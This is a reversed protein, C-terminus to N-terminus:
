ALQKKLVALENSFRGIKSSLESYLFEGTTHDFTIPQTVMGKETFRASRRANIFSEIPNNKSQVNNRADVSLTPISALSVTPLSGDSPEKQSECRAELPIDTLGGDRGKITFTPSRRNYRMNTAKNGGGMENGFNWDKNATTIIDLDVSQLNDKYKTIFLPTMNNEVNNGISSAELKKSSALLHRQDAVIVRSRSFDNQAGTDIHRLASASPLSSSMRLSKLASRANSVLADQEETTMPKNRLDSRLASASKLASPVVDMPTATSGQLADLIVADPIRDILSPLVHCVRKTLGILGQPEQQKEQPFSSQQNHREITARKLADNKSVEVLKISVKHDASTEGLELAVRSQETFSDKDKKSSHDLLLNSMSNISQKASLSRSSDTVADIHAASNSFSRPAPVLISKRQLTDSSVSRRAPMKQAAKSRLTTSHASTLSDTPPKIGFHALVNSVSLGSEAADLLINKKTHMQAGVLGARHMTSLLNSYYGNCTLPATRFPTDMPTIVSSSYSCDAALFDEHGKEDEHADVFTVCPEHGLSSMATQPADKIGSSISLMGTTNLTDENATNDLITPHPSSIGTELHLGPHLASEESLKVPEAEGPCLTSNNLGDSGCTLISSFGSESTTLPFSRDTQLTTNTITSMSITNHNGDFIVPGFSKNRPPPASNGRAGSDVLQDRFVNGIALRELLMQDTRPQALAREIRLMEELQGADSSGQSEVYAAGFKRRRFSNQAQAGSLYCSAYRSPEPHALSDLATPSRSRPVLAPHLPVPRRVVAPPAPHRPHFRPSVHDVRHGPPLRVRVPPM